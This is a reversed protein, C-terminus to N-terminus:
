DVPRINTLLTRSTWRIGAVVARLLSDFLAQRHHAKGATVHLERVQHARLLAAIRHRHGAAIRTSGREAHRGRGM